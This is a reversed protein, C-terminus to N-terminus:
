RKKNKLWQMGKATALLQGRQAQDAGHRERAIAPIEIMEGHISCAAPHQQRGFVM